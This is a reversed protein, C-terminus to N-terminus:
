ESEEAANPTASRALRFGVHEYLTYIEGASASEAHRPYDGPGCSIVGGRIIRYQQPQDPDELKSTLDVTALPSHVWTSTWEAYGTLIGRIPPQGPLKIEDYLTGGATAFVEAADDPPERQSQAEAALHALYAYELDTLLRCGSAEAYHEAMDYRIFLTDNPPHDTPVQESVTGESDPRIILYDGFTFESTTVYFPAISLRKGDIVFEDIGPVYAMEIHDNLPPIEVIPWEIETPTRSDSHEWNTGMSRWEGGPVTRNVALYRDPQGEERLTVHLRYRGPLLSVTGPSSYVWEVKTLDPEGTKPNCPNVTVTAGAPETIVHVTLPQVPAAQVREPKLAQVALLTALPVTVVLLLIATWKHKKLWRWARVHQPIPRAHVPEGRVYRMLDASLDAASDYRDTPKKELCKHCITALDPHLDKVHTSLSEPAVQLIRHLAERPDGQFVPRGALLEYLMAGISYVDTRADIGRSKGEAQEPSMYALTGIVAGSGAVTSGADDRKALGFDTVFPRGEKDILVNSPKLDRHVVGAAHAHSVADAIRACLQAAGKHDARQRKNWVKLNVGDVFEYVIYAIGDQIGYAIVRVIGPHNLKAASKAERRFDAAYERSLSRETPLKVAVERELRPDWAKWVVGFSGSGVRQLLQYGAIEKIDALKQIKSATLHEIGALAGAFQPFRSAYEEISPLEGLNSRYEMDIQVLEVFLTQWLNSDTRQLFYSIDPPEGRKWSDEFEDCLQEIELEPSFHATKTRDDHKAM